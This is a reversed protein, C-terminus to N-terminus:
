SKEKNDLYYGLQEVVEWAGQQKLMEARGTETGIRADVVPRLHKLALVSHVQRLVTPDFDDWHKPSTHTNAFPM